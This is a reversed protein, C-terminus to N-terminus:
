TIQKSPESSPIPMNSFELSASSGSVGSYGISGWPGLSGEGGAGEGDCFSVVDADGPMRANISRGDFPLSGLRLSVLSFM